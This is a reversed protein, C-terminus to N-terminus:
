VLSIRLILHPESLFFVQIFEAEHADKSLIEDLFDAFEEESSLESQEAGTSMIALLPSSSHFLVADVSCTNASVKSLFHNDLNRSSLRTLDMSILAQLSAAFALRGLVRRSLRTEVGSKFRQIEM